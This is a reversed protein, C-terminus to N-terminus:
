LIDGKQIEKYEGSDLGLDALKLKGIRIRVLKVVEFGMKDCM